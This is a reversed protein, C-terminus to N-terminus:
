GVFERVDSITLLKGNRLRTIFENRGQKTQTKRFMKNLLEKNNDDIDLKYKFQKETTVVCYYRYDHVALHLYLGNEFSVIRAIFGVKTQTEGIQEAQWRDVPLVVDIEKIKEYIEKLTKELDFPKEVIKEIIKEKEVIKVEQAATPQAITAVTAAATGAGLGFYKLFARREM